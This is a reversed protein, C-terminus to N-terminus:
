PMLAPKTPSASNVPRAPTPILGFGVNKHPFGQIVLFLNFDNIENRPVGNIADKEFDITVQIIKTKIKETM